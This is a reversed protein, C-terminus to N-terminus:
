PGFDYPGGDEVTAFFEGAGQFVIRLLSGKASAQAYGSEGTSLGDHVIVDTGVCLAQLLFPDAVGLEVEWGPDIESSPPLSAILPGTAGRNNFRRGNDNATLAIDATLSTFTSTQIIRAAAIVGPTALDGSTPDLTAPTGTIVKGSTGKFVAIANNTASAPGSVNGGAGAIVIQAPAGVDIVVESSTTEVIVDDSM